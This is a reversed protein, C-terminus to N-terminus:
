QLSSAEGLGRTLIAKVAADHLESRRREESLIIRVRLNWAVVRLRIQRSRRGRVGRYGGVANV